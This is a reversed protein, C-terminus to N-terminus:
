QIVEDARLLLAQPMTLGLTKATRLNIVFEFKTPQEVPMDAPRAGKLVKDVLAAARRFSADVSPGYSMLGGAEAYDNQPFIGPLQNRVAFEVIRTRVSWLMGDGLQLVASM